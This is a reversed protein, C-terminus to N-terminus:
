WSLHFGDERNMNPHLEIEIAERMMWDMYRSKISLIATDQLHGLSISHKAM